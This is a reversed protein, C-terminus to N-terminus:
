TRKLEIGPHAALSFWENSLALVVHVFFAIWFSGTRYALYGLIIGFPIAGLAEKIGKPIHVLSYLGTTLLLAPWLGMVEISSFLLFGRFLFEYALLYAIWSLASLILLSVSWHPNRVMPYQELNKSSKANLYNVPLILASLLLTWSFTGNGPKSCGYSFPYRHLYFLILLLSVLGFFFVGSLRQVVVQVANDPTGDAGTRPSKNGSLFHYLVFGISAVTFSSAFAKIAQPDQSIEM